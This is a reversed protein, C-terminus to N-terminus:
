WNVTWSKEATLSLIEGLTVKATTRKKGDPSILTMSFSGGTIEDAFTQGYVSALLENYEAPTMKEDSLAPIMMLDFYAQSEEDLMAYLAQFQISGLTLTLSKKTRSLIGTKALTIESISRASGSAFLTTADKSNAFVQQLGTAKLMASIDNANFLPATDNAEGSVAGVISKLTQETSKSFGTSFSITAGDVGTAQVTLDPSCACFALLSLFIGTITGYKKCWNCLNM